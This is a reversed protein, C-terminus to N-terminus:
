NFTPPHSDLLNPVLVVLNNGVSTTRQILPTNTTWWSSNGGTQGPRFMTLMSSQPTQGGRVGGGRRLLLAGPNIAEDLRNGFNSPKASSNEGDRAAAAAIKNTVALALKAKRMSTADKSNMLEIDDIGGNSAQDASHQQYRKMGGGRESYQHQQQITGIAKNVVFSLKENLKQGKDEERESKEEEEKEVQKTALERYLLELSPLNWDSALTLSSSSPAWSQGSRQGNKLDSGELIIKPSSYHINKQTQHDFIPRTYTMRQGIERIADNIISTKLAFDEPSDENFDDLVSISVGKSAKIVSYPTGIIPEINADRRIKKTDSSTNIPPAQEQGVVQRNLILGGKGIITNDKSSSSSSSGGNGKGFMSSLLPDPPILLGSAPANVEISFDTFDELVSENNYQQAWGEVVTGRGDAPFKMSAGWLLDDKKLKIHNEYGSIFVHAAKTLKGPACAWADLISATQQHKQQQINQFSFYASSVGGDKQRFMQKFSVMWPKIVNNLTFVVINIALTKTDDIPIVPLKFIDSLANTDVLSEAKNTLRLVAKVIGIIMRCVRALKEMDTDKSYIFWNYYSNLEKAMLTLATEKWLEQVMDVNKEADNEHKEIVIEGGELPFLISQDADSISLSPDATFAAMAAVCSEWANFGKELLLSINQKQLQLIKYLVSFDYTVDYSGFRHSSSTHGKTTKGAVVKKNALGSARLVNLTYNIRNNCLNVYAVIFNYMLHCVRIRFMDGTSTDVAAAAALKEQLRPEVKDALPSSRLLNSCATFLSAITAECLQSRVPGQAVEKDTMSQRLFKRYIFATRSLSSIMGGDIAFINYLLTNLAFPVSKSADNKVSPSYYDKIHALTDSLSVGLAKLTDEREHEEVKWNLDIYQRFYEPHVTDEDLIDTEGLWTRLVYYPFSQVNIGHPKVLRLNADRTPDNKKADLILGIDMENHATEVFNEEAIFDELEQKSTSEDIWKQQDSVGTAGSSLDVKEMRISTKGNELKLAIEREAATSPASASKTTQLVANALTIAEVIAAKELTRQDDLECVQMSTVPPTTSPTSPPPPNTSSASAAQQQQQQKVNNSFEEIQNFIGSLINKVRDEMETQATTIIYLYKGMLNLNKSKCVEVIREPFIRMISNNEATLKSFCQTTFTSYEERLKTLNMIPSPPTAFVLTGLKASAIKSQFNNEERQFLTTLDATYKTAVSEAVKRVCDDKEAGEEREEREEDGDDGGRRRGQQQLLQQFQQQQQLLQQRFQDSQQQQQQQQQERQQQQQQEQVRQQEEIQQQLLQQQNQQDQQQQLLQQQFQQQQQQQQQQFIQLAESLTRSLEASSDSINKGIEQRIDVALSGSEEMSTEGAPYTIAPLNLSLANKHIVDLIISLELCLETVKETTKSALSLDDINQGSLVDYTFQSGGQIDLFNRFDNVANLFDPSSLVSSKHLLPNSRIRSTTNIDHLTAVSEKIKDNSKIQSSISDAISRQREDTWDGKLYPSIKSNM